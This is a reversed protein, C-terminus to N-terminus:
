GTTGRSWTPRTPGIANPGITNLAATPVDHHRQRYDPTAPLDAAHEKVAPLALIATREADDMWGAHPKGAKLRAPFDAKVLRLHVKTLNRYTTRIVPWPAAWTSETQLSLDRSEIQAVLNRCM